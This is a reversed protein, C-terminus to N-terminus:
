TWYTFAKRMGKLKRWKFCFYLTSNTATNPLFGINEGVADDNFAFVSYEYETHKSPFETSPVSVIKCVALSSLMEEGLQQCQFTKGHKNKRSYSTCLAMQWTNSYSLSLLLYLLLHWYDKLCSAFYDLLCRLSINRGDCMHSMWRRYKFNCTVYKHCCDGHSTNAHWLYTVDM